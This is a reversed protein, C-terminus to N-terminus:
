NHVTELVKGERLLVVDVGYKDALKQATEAMFDPTTHGDDQGSSGMVVMDSRFLM